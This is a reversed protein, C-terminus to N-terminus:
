EHEELRLDPFSGNRHAVADAQNLAHAETLTEM